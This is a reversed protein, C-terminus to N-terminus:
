AGAALCVVLPHALHVQGNGQYAQKLTIGIAQLVTLWGFLSQLKNASILPEARENILIRRALIGNARPVQNLWALM